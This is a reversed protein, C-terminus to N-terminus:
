VKIGVRGTADVRNLLIRSKNANFYEDTAKRSGAWAGYDDIILVGKNVLLPYLYTLEHKTSEYWDTDLRLLAIQSPMSGPITDEVKGKVFVLKDKPYGTLVLNNQVESLPSFYWINDADDARKKSKAMLSSADAHDSMRYDDKSPSSMGEYTDYLYIKRSTDGLELLTYAMVMASGGKWVGCEVFDGALGLDVVYEVAKRLAYIREKSTMTFPLCKKYIEPYEDVISYNNIISYGKKDAMKRLIEQFKWKLKM